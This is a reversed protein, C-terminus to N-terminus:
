REEKRDAIIDGSKSTASSSSISASGSVTKTSTSNMVKQGLERDQIQKLIM